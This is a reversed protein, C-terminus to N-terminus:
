QRIQDRIWQSVKPHPLLPRGMRYSLGSLRRQVNGEIGGPAMLVPVVLVTGGDRGGEKVMRRFLSTAQAKVVDPADDRLSVVKVGRFGGSEKLNKAWQRLSEEWLVNDSDENPGHAALVVTEHFPERSIERARGLLVDAIVPSSDLAPRLVVPVKLDLPVVPGSSLHSMGGPGEDLSSFGPTPRLGLLYQYQRYVESHSSILLPIAIIKQAGHSCLNRVAMQYPRSDEDGMGFVVEYPCPLEAKKVCERVLHNWRLSGGHALLLVGVSLACVPTRKKKM